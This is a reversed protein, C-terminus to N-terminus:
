HPGDHELDESPFALTAEKRLADREADSLAALKGEIFAKIKPWDDGFKAAAELCWGHLLAFM